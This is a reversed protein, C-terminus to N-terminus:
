RPKQQGPKKPDAAKPLNIEIEQSGTKITFKQESVARNEDAYLEPINTMDKLKEWMAKQGEAMSSQGPLEMMGKEKKSVDKAGQGGATVLGGTQAGFEGKDAQAKLRLYDGYQKTTSVTVTVPGPPVREAKFVGDEIEAPVAKKATDEPIFTVTGATLVNGDYTVKGTVTGSKSCGIVGVLLVLSLVLLPPLSRKMTTNMREQHLIPLPLRRVFVGPFFESCLIVRFLVM